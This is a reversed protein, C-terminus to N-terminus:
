EALIEDAQWPAIQGGGHVRGDVALDFHDEGVADDRYVLVAITNAQVELSRCGAIEIQDDSGVSEM